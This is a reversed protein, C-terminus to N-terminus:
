DIDLFIFVQYKILFIFLRVFREFRAQKEEQKAIKLYDKKHNETNKKAKM